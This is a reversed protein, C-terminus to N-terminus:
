EPPGPTTQPNFLPPHNKVGAGELHRRIANEYKLQESPMPLTNHDADFLVLTSETAAAHLAESHGPPVIRDSKGHMILIPLDLQKFARETRLPTRVLFPPIGYRWAMGAISKFTSEVIMARPEIRLAVQAAFGAGISRGHYVLRDRDIEPKDLVRNLLAVTDGVIHKESPTGDSDGYGRYEVMFVSVGMDRYLRLIPQQQDVLEANGHFFVALPAPNDASADPAPDYWAATTGEDTQLELRVTPTAGSPQGAFQTPFILSTQFFFLLGCYFVYLVVPILLWTMIRRKITPKPKAM